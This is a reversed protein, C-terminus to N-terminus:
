GLRKRELISKVVSQTTETIQKDTPLVDKNGTQKVSKKLVFYVEPEPGRKFNVLLLKNAFKVVSLDFSRPAKGYAHRSVPIALFKKGKPKIVGGYFRQAVERQMVVAAQTESSEARTARQMRAWFSSRVGFKNRNTSALGAFHDKVLNRAGTAVAAHLRARDRLTLSLGKLVASANDIVYAM